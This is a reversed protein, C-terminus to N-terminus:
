IEYILYRKQHSGTEHGTEKTQKNQGRVDYRSTLSMLSHQSPVSWREQAVHLQWMRVSSLKRMNPACSTRYRAGRGCVSPPPRRGHRRRAAEDSSANMAGHTAALSPKFRTRSLGGKRQLSESNGARQRTQTSRTVDPLFYLSVCGGEGAEARRGARPQRLPRRPITLSECFPADPAGCFTSAASARSPSHAAEDDIDAADAEAGSCGGGIGGM